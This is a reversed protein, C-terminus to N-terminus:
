SLRGELVARRKMLRQTLKVGVRAVRELGRQITKIQKKAMQAERLVGRAIAREQSKIERLEKRIEKKMNIM